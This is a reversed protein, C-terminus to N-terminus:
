ENDLDTSSKKSKLNFLYVLSKKREPVLSQINKEVEEKTTGGAIIMGQLIAFWGKNLGIGHFQKAYNRSDIKALEQHYMVLFSDDKRTLKMIEEHYRERNQQNKLYFRLKEIDNMESRESIFPLTLIIGFRSIAEQYADKISRRIGAGFSINYRAFMGDFIIVDKFPLIAANIMIPLFPGTLKEFTNVLGLVGYVKPPDTHSIFITHKLTHRFIYFEGKIFYKWNRVIAIEEPSYNLSFENAFEEFLEPQSYLKERIKYLDQLYFKKIDAPTSLGALIKYKNNTYALLSHFLKYFLDVNANSLRM